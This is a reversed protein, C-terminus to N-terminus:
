YKILSINSVGIGIIAVKRGKLYNNFELLKENVYEM